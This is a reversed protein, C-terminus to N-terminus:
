IIFERDLIQAATPRNSVQMSLMENILDVLNKDYFASIPPIKEAYLDETPVEELTCLSLLVRGMQWISIPAPESSM